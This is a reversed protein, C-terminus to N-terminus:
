KGTPIYITSGERAPDGHLMLLMVFVGILMLTFIGGFLIRVSLSKKRLILFSGAFAIAVLIPAVSIM